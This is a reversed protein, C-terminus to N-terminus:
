TLPASAAMDERHTAAAALATITTPRTIASSRPPTLAGPTGHDLVLEHDHLM